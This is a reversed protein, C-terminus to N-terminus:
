LQGTRDGRLNSSEAFLEAPGTPLQGAAGIELHRRRRGLEGALRREPEVVDVRDSGGDADARHVQDSPRVVRPRVRVPLDARLKNANGTLRGPRSNSLAFMLMLVRAGRIVAAM